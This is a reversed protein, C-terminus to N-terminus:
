EKGKVEETLSIESVLARAEEEKAAAEAIMNQIEALKAELEAAYARLEEEKPDEIVPPNQVVAVWNDFREQKLKEVQDPDIKEWEELAFYLCDNFERGDQQKSFRVQIFVQDMIVAGM